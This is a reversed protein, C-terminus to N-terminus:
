DIIVTDKQRYRYTPSDSTDYWDYEGCDNNWVQVEFHYGLNVLEIMKNRIENYLAAAKEAKIKNVRAEIEHIQKDIAQNEILLRTLEDMLNEYNEM